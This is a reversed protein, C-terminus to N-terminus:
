VVPLRRCIPWLFAAAAAAAERKSLAAPLFAQQACSLTSGDILTRVDVLLSVSCLGVTEPTDVHQLKMSCFTRCLTLAASSAV